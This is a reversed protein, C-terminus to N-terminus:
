QLAQAEPPTLPRDFLKLEDILGIFLHGARFTQESPSFPKTSDYPTQVILVGGAYVAGVKALADWTMVVHVWTNQPAAVTTVFTYQGSGDGFQFAAQYMGNNGGGTHRLFIHGRTPDYGDFVNRDASDNPPFTNRSWISLTGSTPFKNGNLAAVEFYDAGHVALARGRVGGAAFTAGAFLAGHNGKGSTDLAVAGDPDEFLYEAILSPDRAADAGDKADSADSADTGSADPPLADSKPLESDAVSADASGGTLGDTSTLSCAGMGCVAGPVGALTMAFLVFRRRM